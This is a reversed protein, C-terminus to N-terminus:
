FFLKWRVPLPRNPENQRAPNGTEILGNDRTVTDRGPTGHTPESFCPLLHIIGDRTKVNVERKM